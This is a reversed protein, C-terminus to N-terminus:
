ATAAYIASPLRRPNPPSLLFWADFRASFYPLWGVFDCNRSWDLNRGGDHTRYSSGGSGVLSGAALTMQQLAKECGGVDDGRENEDSIDGRKEWLPRAAADGSAM